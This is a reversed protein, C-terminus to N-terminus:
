SFYFFNLLWQTKLITQSQWKAKNRDVHQDVAQGESHHMPNDM